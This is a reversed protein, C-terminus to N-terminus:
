THALHAPCAHTPITSIPMAHEALHSTCTLSSISSYLPLLAAAKGAAAFGSPACAADDCPCAAKCAPLLPLPLRHQPCAQLGGLMHMSPKHPVRLPQQAGLLCGRELQLGGQRQMLLHLWGPPPTSGEFGGMGQLSQGKPVVLVGHVAHEACLSAAPGGAAAQVPPAARVLQLRHLKSALCGRARCERGWMTWANQRTLASACWGGTGALLPSSENRQLMRATARKKVNM